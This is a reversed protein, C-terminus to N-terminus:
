YEGAFVFPLEAKEALKIRYEELTLTGKRLNCARCSRVINTPDDSGGRSRPTMHDRQWGPKEGCYFCWVIEWLGTRFNEKTAQHLDDIFRLEDGAAKRFAAEFRARIEYKASTYAAERRKFEALMDADDLAVFEPNFEVELPDINM